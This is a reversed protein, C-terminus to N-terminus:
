TTSLAKIAAEARERSLRMAPQDPRTAPQSDMRQALEALTFASQTVKQLDGASFEGTKARAHLSPMAALGTTVCDAVLAGLLERCIGRAAGKLDQVTASHERRWRLVTHCDVDLEAAILRSSVGCALMVIAARRNAQIEIPLDDVAEIFPVAISSVHEAEVQEHTRPAM